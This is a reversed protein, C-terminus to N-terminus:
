KRRDSFLDVTFWEINTDTAEMVTQNNLTRSVLIKSQIQVYVVNNSETIYYHDSYRATIVTGVKTQSINYTGYYGEDYTYYKLGSMTTLPCMFDEGLLCSFTETWADSGDTPSYDARVTYNAGDVETVEARITGYLDGVYTGTFNYEYEIYNGVSLRLPEAKKITKASRMPLMSRSPVFTYITKTLGFHFSEVVIKVDSKERSEWLLNYFETDVQRSLEVTRMNRCLIYTQNWVISINEPMYILEVREVIIDEKTNYNKLDVYVEESIINLNWCVRLDSPPLPKTIFYVALVSVVVIIVAIVAILIKKNM